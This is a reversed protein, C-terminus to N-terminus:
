GIQLGDMNIGAAIRGDDLAAQGSAAGGFSHGLVGVGDLDIMGRFREDGANLEFFADIAFGIDDAWIALSERTKPRLREYERFLADLKEPDATEVIAREVPLGAQRERGRLMFEPNRPDFRVVRGDPKTVSNTEFPHGISAAVYGHSALEEMLVTSQNMGAWYGHTYIVLPFPGGSAFRADKYSHTRISSLREELRELGARMEESFGQAPIDLVGPQAYLCPRDGNGVDAPYWIRVAIERHDEPDATFTEPRGPDTFSLWMTGVAYSGTPEPLAPVPEGKRACSVLAAAALVTLLGAAARKVAAGTKRM